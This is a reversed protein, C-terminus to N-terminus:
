FYDYIAYALIFDFRWITVSITHRHAHTQPLWGDSDVKINMCNNNENSQPKRWGADNTEYQNRHLHIQETHAWIHSHFSHVFTGPCTNQRLSIFRRAMSICEFIGTMMAPRKDIMAYPHNIFCIHGSQVWIYGYSVNINYQWIVDYMM